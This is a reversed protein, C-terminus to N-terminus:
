VAGAIRVLAGINFLPSDANLKQEVYIELQGRTLPLMTSSGITATEADAGNVRAFNLENM